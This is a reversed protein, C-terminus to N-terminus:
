AAATLTALRIAAEVRLRLEELDFPKTIIDTVGAELAELRATRDAQHFLMLVPIHRTLMDELLDQCVQFPNRDTLEDSILIANPQWSRATRMVEDAQGLTQVEHGHTEFYLQLTERVDFDPDAALIRSNQM